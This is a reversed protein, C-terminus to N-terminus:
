DNCNKFINTLFCAYKVLKREKWKESIKEGIFIIVSVAVGLLLIMHHQVVQNAEVEKFSSDRNNEMTMWIQKKLRALHGRYIMMDLSFHFSIALSFLIRTFTDGDNAKLM